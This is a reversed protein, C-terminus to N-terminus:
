STGKEVDNFIALTHDSSGQEDTDEDLVQPTKQYKEIGRWGKEDLSFYVKRFVRSLTEIGMSRLNDRGITGCIHKVCPTDEGQLYNAFEEDCGDVGVRGRLIMSRIDYVSPPYSRWDASRRLRSVMMQIDAPTAQIEELVRAVEGVRQLRNGPDKLYLSMYSAHLVQDIYLAKSFFYNERMEYLVAAHHPRPPLGEFMGRGIHNTAVWGLAESGYVKWFGRQWSRSTVEAIEDVGARYVHPYAAMMAKYFNLISQRADEVRTTDTM